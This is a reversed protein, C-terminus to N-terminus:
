KTFPPVSKSILPRTSFMYFCICFEILVIKFNFWWTSVISLRWLSKIVIIQSFVKVLVIWFSLHLFTIEATGSATELIIAKVLMEGAFLNIMSLWSRVLETFLKMIRFDGNQRLCLSPEELWFPSTSKELWCRTLKEWSIEGM